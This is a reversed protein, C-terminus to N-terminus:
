KKVKRMAMVRGDDRREFTQLELEPNLKSAFIAMTKGQFDEMKLTGCYYKFRFVKGPQYVNEVLDFQNLIVGDCDKTRIMRNKM